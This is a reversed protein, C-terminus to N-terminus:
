VGRGLPPFANDIDNGSLFDEMWAPSRHSRAHYPKLHNFHVIMSMKWRRRTLPAEECQIRYNIESIVKVVRWPGSWPHYFKRHVWWPVAKEELWVRYPRSNGKCRADYVDKQHHLNTKLDEEVREKVDQLIEGQKKVFSPYDSPRESPPDDKM